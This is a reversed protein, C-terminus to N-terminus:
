SGRPGPHRSISALIQDLDAEAPRREVRQVDMEHRQDRVIPGAEAATDRGDAQEDEAADPESAPRAAQPLCERDGAEDPEARRDPDVSENAVQVRAM